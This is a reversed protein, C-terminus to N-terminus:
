TAIWTPYKSIFEGVKDVAPNTDNKIAKLLELSTPSLAQRSDPAPGSYPVYTGGNIKISVLSSPKIGKLTFIWDGISTGNGDFVFAKAISTMFTTLKLPDSLGKDYAEKIVAKIFQLQHRQRAYDTGELGDRARVFDLASAPDLHAQGKHYVVPHVGPLACRIPDQDFSVPGYCIPVGTNPDINYPKAPKGSADHGRHISYVTEDIYMDVGGLQQVIDTFGDFNVIAAANFRLGYQQNLTQALLQFGGSDGGGNQSGFTFAANIKYSGGGFNSKPFAPINVSTDRPISVMYARDHSAPIHMVIITDSHSGNNSTTRTDVGVLLLNLSGDLNRGVAAASGGGLLDEQHVAGSVSNLVLRVILYGGGSLLLVISGLIVLMTAWKPARRQRKSGPKTTPPDDIKPAVPTARGYVTARGAVRPANGAAVDSQADPHSLERAPQGM